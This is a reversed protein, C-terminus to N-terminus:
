YNKLGSTRHHYVFYRQRLALGDPPMKEFVQAQEEAAQHMLLNCTGKAAFVDAQLAKAFVLNIVLPETSHHDLFRGRDRSGAM